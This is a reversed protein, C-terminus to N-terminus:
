SAGPVVADDPDREMDVAFEVGNKRVSPLGTHAPGVAAMYQVEQYMYFRPGLPSGQFIGVQFRWAQM